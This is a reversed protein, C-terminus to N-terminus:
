ITLVPDERDAQVQRIIEDKQLKQTETLIAAQATGFMREYEEPLQVAIGTEEEVKEMLLALYLKLNEIKVDATYLEEKTRKETLSEREKVLRKRMRIHSQQSWAKLTNRLFRRQYYNDAYVTKEKIYQKWEWHFKFAEFAKRKLLEREGKKQLLRELITATTFERMHHYDTEKTAEELKGDQFQKHSLKEREVEKLEAEFERLYEVRILKYRQVLREKFLTFKNEFAKPWYERVTQSYNEINEHSFSETNAEHVETEKGRGFSAQSINEDDPQEKITSHAQELEEDVTEMRKSASHTSVRQQSQSNSFTLDDTQETQIPANAM